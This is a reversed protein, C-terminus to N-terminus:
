LSTLTVGSLAKACCASTGDADAMASPGESAGAGAGAVAGVGAGVATAAAGAALLAEGGSVTASCPVTFVRRVHDATTGRFVWDPDFCGEVGTVGM